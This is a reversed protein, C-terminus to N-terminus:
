NISSYKYREDRQCNASISLRKVCAFIVSLVLILAMVMATAISFVTVAEMTSDQLLGCESKWDTPRLDKTLRQFQKLPCDLNCNFLQLPYPDVTTDNRYSFNVYFNSENKKKFLEVIILSAYPPGIPPYFMDLTNLLSSLTTDHGSYMLVKRSHEEHIFGQFHDLISQVIPGGRLRKMAPTWTNLKFSLDKMPKMQDPFVKHTWKPLTKNYLNEIFLTDYLYDIDLLNEVKQGTHKSLYKFIWDNKAIIDAIEPDDSLAEFLKKYKPCIAHNAIINDQDLPMTHVPIPQWPLSPNWVQDGKPPYLGALNSMASMLTRDVDSSRVYIDNEDYTDSLFNEYRKRLFQGLRFQMMKGRPTLQGFGVPWNSRDKYPDTPYMDVPARDGHRFLVVVTQLDGDQSQVLGLCLLLYICDFINM